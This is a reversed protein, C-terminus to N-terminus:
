SPRMADTLATAVASADKMLQVLRNDISSIMWLESPNLMINGVPKSAAWHELIDARMAKSDKVDKGITMLRKQLDAVTMRKAEPEGTRSPFNNM